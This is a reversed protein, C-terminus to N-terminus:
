TTQGKILKGPSVVVSDSKSLVDGELLKVMMEIAEDAQDSIDFEIKTPTLHYPFDLGSSAHSVLLLDDPLKINLKSIARLAGQCIIDDAIVVGDPHEDTQNWFRLFGEYGDAEYIQEKPETCAVIWEDKYKLGNARSLEVFSNKLFGASGLLGVSRCGREALHKVGLSLITSYDFYVNNKSDSRHDGVSVIPVGSDELKDGLEFLRHFCFVGRLYPLVRPDLLDLSAAFEDGTSTIKGVHLKVQLKPYKKQIREILLNSAIRYYSSGESTLLQPRIVIAFEGVSLRDSVVTGRGHYRRLHGEQVLINIAKDMTLYSVSFRSALKRASPLMEGVDLSHITKRLQSTVIEYRPTRREKSLQGTVAM